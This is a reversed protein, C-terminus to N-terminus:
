ASSANDAIPSPHHPWYSAHYGASSRLQRENKLEEVLLPVSGPDVSMREADNTDDYGALRSYVSQRLLALLRHQTNKGTRSDTLESEIMTTLGLVEDLERYALLGADSTVKTGHFEVKLKRDFDLRLADKRREGMPNELEYYDFSAQTTEM